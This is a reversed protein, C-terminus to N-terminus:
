IPLIRIKIIAFEMKKGELKQTYGANRKSTYIVLLLIENKM